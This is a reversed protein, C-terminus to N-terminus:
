IVYNKNISENSKFEGINNYVKMSKTTNFTRDNSKRIGKLSLIKFNVKEKIKKLQDENNKKSIKQLLIEMLEDNLTFLKKAKEIKFSKEFNYINM